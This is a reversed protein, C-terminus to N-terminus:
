GGTGLPSPAPPCRKTESTEVHTTELNRLPSATEAPDLVPTHDGCRPRNQRPPHFIDPSRTVRSRGKDFGDGHSEIGRHYHDPIPLNPSTEQCFNPLSAGAPPPFSRQNLQSIPQINHM